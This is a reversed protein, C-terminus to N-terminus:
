LRRGGVETRSRPLCSSAARGRRHAPGRPRPRVTNFESTALRESAQGANVSRLRTVGNRTYEEQGKLLDPQALLVGRLTTDDGVRIADAMLAPWAVVGRPSLSAPVFPDDHDQEAAFEALMRERTPEDLERLNLAM